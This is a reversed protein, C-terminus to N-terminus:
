SVNRRSRTRRGAGSRPASSICSPMGPNDPPLTTSLIRIRREIGPGLQRDLADPGGYISRFDRAVVDDSMVLVGDYDM